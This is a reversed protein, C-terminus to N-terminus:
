LDDTSVSFLFSRGDDNDFVCVSAHVIARLKM